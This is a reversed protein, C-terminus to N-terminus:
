RLRHSRAGQWCSGTARATPANTTLGAGRRPTPSVLLDDPTGDPRREDEAGRCLQPNARDFLM